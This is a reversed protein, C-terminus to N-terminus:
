AVAGKREELRTRLLDMGEALYGFRKMRVCRDYLWLLLKEQEQEGAAALADRLEDFELKAVLKAQAIYREPHPMEVEQANMLSWRQLLEATDFNRWDPYARDFIRAIHEGPELKRAEDHAFVREVLGLPGTLLGTLDPCFDEGLEVLNTKLMGTYLYREQGTQWTGTIKDLLERATTELLCLGTREEADAPDSSRCSHILALLNERFLPRMRAFRASGEDTRAPISGQEMWRYYDNIVGLISRISSRLANRRSGQLDAGEAAPYNRGAQDWNSIIYSDVKEGSIRYHGTALFRKRYSALSRLLAEQDETLVWELYQKLGQHALEKTDVFRAFKRKGNDKAPAAMYANYLNRAHAMLEAKEREEAASASDRYAAYRDACQGSSRRFDELCDCVAGLGPIGDALISRRLWLPADDNQFVTRLYAAALAYRNLVSFRADCESLLSVMAATDYNQEALPDNVAASVTDSLKKLNPNLMAGARLATLQSALRDEGNMSFVRRAFQEESTGLDEWRGMNLVPVPFDEDEEGPDEPSVDQKSGADPLPICVPARQELLKQRTQLILDSTAQLKPDHPFHKVLEGYVAEAEAVLNQALLGRIKWRLVRSHKKQFHIDEEYGSHFIALWQDAKESLTCLRSEEGTENYLRMIYNCYQTLIGARLRAPVTTDKLAEETLRVSDELEHLQHYLQALLSIAKSHSPYLDRHAEVFDLTTRALDQNGNEAAIEVMLALADMEDTTGLANRCYWCALESRLGKLEEGAQELLSPGRRIQTAEGNKVGFRVLRKRHVFGSGERLIQELLEPDEVGSNRFPYVREQDGDFLTIEGTSNAWLIKTILGSLVAPATAPKRPQDLGSILDRGSYFRPLQELSEHLEGSPTKEKYLILDEVLERVDVGRSHLWAAVSADDQEICVNELLIMMDRKIAASCQGEALARAAQTGAELWQKEKFACLAAQDPMGALDYLKWDHIGERSLMRAALVLAEQSWICGNGLEQLIVKRATQAAQIRKDHSNIKVGYCFSDYATQLLRKETKDLASFLNKLEYDSIRQSYHEINQGHLLKKRADKGPLQPPVGESLIAFFKVATHDVFHPVGQADLIEMCSDDKDTITGTVMLNQGDMFGYSLQIATGVPLASLRKIMLTSM